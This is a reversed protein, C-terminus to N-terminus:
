WPPNGHGPPPSHAAATGSPAAYPSAPPQPRHPAQSPAAPLADLMDWLGRLDFAIVAALLITLVGFAFLAVDPIVRAVGSLKVLAVLVGLMFVEIMGWPRLGIITRLVLAFGAPRRGLRLPILLWLLALLETLPFLLTSCLVLVAVTMNDERWLQGVASLLSAASTFGNSRLEVIPFANAIVLTMLATLTLALVRDLNGSGRRYLVANCRSCRATTMKSLAVKRHLADCEHCAILEDHDM